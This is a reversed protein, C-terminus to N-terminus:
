DQAPPLSNGPVAEKTVGDEWLTAWETIEEHLGKIANDYYKFIKSVDAIRRLIEAFVLTNTQLGKVTHDKLLHYTYTIDTATFPFSGMGTDDSFNALEKMTKMAQELDIAFFITDVTYTMNKTILDHMYKYQKRNLFLNFQVDALNSLAEKYMVQAEHYLKDKVENEQGAGDNNAIYARVDTIHKDLAEEDTENIFRLTGENDLKLIPKDGLMDMGLKEEAQKIQEQVESM